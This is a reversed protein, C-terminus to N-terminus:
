LLYNMEFLDEPDADMKDVPVFNKYVNDDEMESVCDIYGSMIATFNNYTYRDSGYFLDVFNDRGHFDSVAPHVITYENHECYICRVQEAGLLFIILM